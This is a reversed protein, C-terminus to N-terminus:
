RIVRLAGTPNTGAFQNYATKATYGKLANAAGITGVNFIMGLPSMEPQDLSINKVAALAQSAAANPDESALLQSEVKARESAVNSRLDAAGQDAKNLVNAMNLDNQKSLDATEDAAVSSRLTGARALRYTLEDKADGYQDAVQPTYYDLIGQKYKNYFDDGFGGSRQGTDYQSDVNFGQGQYHLQGDPGRLAWVMPASGGGARAAAASVQPTGGIGGGSGQNTGGGPMGNLTGGAGFGSIKGANPNVPAGPRQIGSIGSRAATAPKWNPDAVQVATFGAPVGTSLSAGRVWNGSADQTAMANGASPKFSNWDFATSKTGMVPSGEFQGRIADMGQQVRAKREAEKQRAEAAQKQQEEVAQNGGSGGGKGGM